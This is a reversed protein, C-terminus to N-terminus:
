FIATQVTSLRKAAIKWYKEDIEYGIYRRGYEAAALCGTGSGAFPEVVLQGERSLCRVLLRILKIDKVTPHGLRPSAGSDVTLSFIDSQRGEMRFPRRLDEYNKRLEEFDNKREDYEKRLCEYEKRLYENKGGGSRSNFLEQLRRYWEHHPLEFQSKYTFWHSAMCTGLTENIQKVTFGAREREANLYDIVPKVCQSKLLGLRTNYYNKAKGGLSEEKDESNSEYVLFREDNSFFSRQRDPNAFKNQIANKKEVTCNNLLHFHRDLITQCYAINRHSGFWVLTGNYSLLRACEEAWRAVDALYADFTDWIQDFDGKVRYYPPDAIILDACHDPLGNGMFDRNYIVNTEM